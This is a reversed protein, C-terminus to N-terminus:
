SYDNPGIQHEWKLQEGSDFRDFIAAGLLYKELRFNEMVVRTDVDAEYTEVKTSDDESTKSSDKTRNLM